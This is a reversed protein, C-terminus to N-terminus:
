EKVTIRRGNVVVVGADGHLFWDNAHIRDVWFDGRVKLGPLNDREAQRDHSQKRLLAVREMLQMESIGNEGPKSRPPVGLQREALRVFGHNVGFNVGMDFLLAWTLPLKLGRHTIYGSVVRDWYGETAIQDQAARMVPDSAADILAARFNGDNRLQPDRGAIRPLFKELAQSSESDSNTVFLRIVRELSGAALTFQILGYSVIGADFNNYAAYGSGEFAATIAFAAKRVRDTDVLADAFDLDAPQVPPAIPEPDDSPEPQEPTADLSVRVTTPVNEPTPSLDANRTLDFAFVLGEVFPYGFPQLDGSVEILDDRIWGVQEDPFRLQFWQYRRGNLNNNDADPQVALISLGDLGVAAKFGIPGNTSPNPRVNVEQISPIALIGRIRASATQSM